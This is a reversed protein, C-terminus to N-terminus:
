NGELNIMRLIITIRDECLMGKREFQITRKSNKAVVSCTFLVTRKEVGFM